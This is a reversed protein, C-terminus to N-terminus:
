RGCKISNTYIETSVIDVLTIPNNQTEHCYFFYFCKKVKLRSHTEIRGKWVHKWIRIHDPVLFTCVINDSYKHTEHNDPWSLVVKTITTFSIVHRTYRSVYHYKFTFFTKTSVTTQALHYVTRQRTTFTLYLLFFCRFNCIYIYIRDFRSEYFTIIIPTVAKFYVLTKTKIIYISILWYWRFTFM